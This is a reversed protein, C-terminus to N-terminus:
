GLWTDLPAFVEEHLLLLDGRSFWRSTGSFRWFWSPFRFFFIKLSLFWSHALRTLTQHFGHALHSENLRYLPMTIVYAKLHLHPLTSISFKKIHPLKFGIPLRFKQYLSPNQLDTIDDVKKAVRLKLAKM